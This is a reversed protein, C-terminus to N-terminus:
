QPESNNGVYVEEIVVKDVQFKKLLELIEDCISNLRVELVKNKSSLVTHYLLKSNEFIAIGCLMSGPDISIITM